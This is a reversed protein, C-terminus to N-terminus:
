GSALFRGPDCRMDIGASSIVPTICRASSHSASCDTGTTCVTRETTCYRAGIVCSRSFGGAGGNGFRMLTGTGIGNSLGLGTDSGNGSGTRGTGTTVAGLAMSCGGSLGTAGFGSGTAGASVTGTGCSIKTGSFGSGVGTRIGGL